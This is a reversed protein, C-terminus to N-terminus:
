FTHVADREPNPSVLKKLSARNAVDMKKDFLDALYQTIMIYEFVDVQADPALDVMIDIDSGPGAASAARSTAHREGGRRRAHNVVGSVKM